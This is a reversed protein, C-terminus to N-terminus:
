PVTLTATGSKGESTATITATGRALARGVAYTGYTGGVQLSVVASDSNAWTIPRGSLVTGLSDRLTVVWVTTDGVAITRTPPAVEVTAVAGAAATVMIVLTDRLAGSGAILRGTGPANGWVTAVGSDAVTITSDPTSWTVLAGPIQLGQSDTVVAFLSISSGVAVQDPGHIEIAASGTGASDPLAVSFSTTGGVNVSVTPAVVAALSPNAPQEFRVIYSGPLLFAVRYDGTANTRGSGVLSWAYSPLGPDGRLVSVNANAVASGNSARTVKGAIAGTAAQNVARIWPLLTFQGTLDDYAFSRGVDFDIVIFAGDVPVDLPAEVLTHIAIEGTFGWNVIAQGGGKYVLSSLRTDLVLRVARYVGAPLAGDGVIATTGQQLQLLDFSRRPEVITVWQGGGSTDPQETAEVRVVHVNVSEVTDYPFPADTLLVRTFPGGGDTGNETYCGGALAVAVTVARLSSRFRM